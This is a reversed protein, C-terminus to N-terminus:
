GHGNIIVSKGNWLVSRYLAGVKKLVSDTLRSDTHVFMRVVAEVARLGAKAAKM